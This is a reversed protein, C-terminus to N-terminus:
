RQTSGRASTAAPIVTQVPRAEFAGIRHQEARSGAAERGTLSGNRVANAIRVFQRHQRADLAQLVACHVLVLRISGRATQRLPAREMSKANKGPM